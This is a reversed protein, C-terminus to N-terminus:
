LTPIQLIPLHASQASHLFALTVDQNPRSSGNWVLVASLPQKKERALSQARDLIAWNATLYAGEGADPNLNLQIIQHLPELDAILRDFIEGWNGPRDAVSFQRFIAPSFPLVIERHIKLEEAVQLALLDAGCAASCILAHPKQQEFLARIKEHVAPINEAPFRPTTADPADIRRGALAFIM